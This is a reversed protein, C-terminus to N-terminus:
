IETDLEIIKDYSHMKDTVYYGVPNVLRLGAVIALSENDGEVLTWLYRLDVGVVDESSEIPSDTTPKYSDCWDQETMNDMTM